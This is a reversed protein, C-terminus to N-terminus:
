RNTPNIRHKISASHQNVEDLESAHSTTHVVGRPVISNVRAFSQQQEKDVSRRRRGEEEDYTIMIDNVRRSRPEESARRDSSSTVELHSVHQDHTLPIAGFLCRWVRRLLKLIYEFFICLVFLSCANMNDVIKALMTVDPLM